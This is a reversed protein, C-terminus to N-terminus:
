TTRRRYDLLEGGSDDEVGARADEGDAVADDGRWNGYGHDCTIGGRLVPIVGARRLGADAQEQVLRRRCGALTEHAV